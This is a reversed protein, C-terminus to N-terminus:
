WGGFCRKRFMDTELVAEIASGREVCPQLLLQAGRAKNVACLKAFIRSSRRLM